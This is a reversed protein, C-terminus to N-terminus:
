KLNNLYNALSFGMSFCGQLLYGGTPCDYDLMEGICYSHPLKKLEFNKTVESRLVGGTTSIAEDLTAIGSIKIELNKIKNALTELSLFEERSTYNKILAIQIPSLKLDLKLKDTNNKSKSFSLKKLVDAESQQPKLDIYIKANNSTLSKRIQPSLAYIANGELGFESVVVEGKQSKDNCTIKINKLPKGIFASLIGKPWNIKFACNSPLFPATEIDKQNFVSMWKGNSGTVKWSGGGLTFITFDSNVAPKNEFTLEASKNWGLWQHNFNVSVGNLALTTEIARLVEIPKIGKEPYIRNSSGVFTRIGITALWVRFDDNTFQQLANELFSSPTFRQIFDSIPEAHTLNFGGKGAVLFKRGLAKNKEYIQIDFKEGDLFSAVALASAGGGIIAIKKKTM